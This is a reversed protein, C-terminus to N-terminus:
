FTVTAENSCTSTGAECVQYTYTAQGRNSTSDTHAGDNATTTLLGGDRYIDVNTSTAGSWSLDITHQGRVKRGTATLTIDGSPAEEITLTITDTGTAGDSDTAAAEITHTGVSLDSRSFSAGTGIQGDLDSTWVLSGSLDGDEADDATGSFDIPDGETFIAGDAPSSITVTPTSNGDTCESPVTFSETISVGQCFVPNCGSEEGSAGEGIGFDAFAQWVICDEDQTPTAALIGDRMDEYAPRSPTFNMGGVVYDFLEDQTRGSSEWLDLLHWMTGAYIEGDNHVSDGTVDGYTLPYDTYPFRRIGGPDNFSYEALVDDRIIYIALVDSMGEGIAGALPGSMDGIMRWTLGHGYEHWIIDSDLDGDRNPTSQTWIFMQMRPNSGDSPTAFNANNTGSGDQAEANVSDSGLGGNGFNDEQFNGASEIFGHQYLKDHIVNNFYFLNQVAVEQNAPLDPEQTLDAETLFNGDSVETGGPDPSNNADTDLYAHVNNGAIDITTQGSSFLWGIPSETNGSGPGAVVEQPTSIPEEPFINYSDTNTRLQHYVVEGQGNVVTHYLLNDRKSWTRVLFGEAMQGERGAIAVRSVTPQTHFFSGAEFRVTDGARSATAPMEQDPFNLELATQLAQEPRVAAPQLPSRPGVLNEVVRILRGLPDVAVKAYAGYVPLGAFRQQFRLHTFGRTTSIERVLALDQAVSAAPGRDALFDRAVAAPAAAQPGTLAREGSPPQHVRAAAASIDIADQPPLALAAGALLGACLALVLTVLSNRM